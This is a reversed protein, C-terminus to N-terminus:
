PLHHIIHHKTYVLPYLQSSIQLRKCSTAPYVLHLLFTILSWLTDHETIVLKLDKIQPADRDQREKLVVQKVKGNFDNIFCTGASLM